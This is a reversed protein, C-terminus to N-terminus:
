GKAPIGARSLVAQRGPCQLCTLAREMNLMDTDDTSCFLLSRVSDIFKCFEFQRRLIQVSTFRVILKTLRIAFEIGEGNKLDALIWSLLNLSLNARYQLCRLGGAKKM